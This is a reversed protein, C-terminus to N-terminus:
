KDLLLVPKLAHTTRATENRFINVLLISQGQRLDSFFSAERIFYIMPVPKRVTIQEIQTSAVTRSTDRDFISMIAQHMDGYNAVM